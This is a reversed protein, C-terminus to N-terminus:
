LAENQTYMKMNLLYELSRKHLNGQAKEVSDQKSRQGMVEM